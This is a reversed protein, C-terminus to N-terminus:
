LEPQRRLHDGNRETAGLLQRFPARKTEADGQDIYLEFRLGGTAFTTSYYSGGKIPCPMPFWNDGQPTQARSWDPHELRLRELFRTWFEVYLARKGTVETARTATRVRKQWQNPEAAVNFLPAPVSNGIRVVELELGFFHTDDATAQNLWDLAQRHGGRFSTAIWVITSAATGAAYTLVQGLHSHDTEGLQNEVVLVADNTLDRGM